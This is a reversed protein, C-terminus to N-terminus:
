LANVQCYLSISTREWHLTFFLLLSLHFLFLSSPPLSSSFSSPCDKGKKLHNLYCHLSVGFSRPPESGHSPWRGYSFGLIAWVWFALQWTRHRRASRLTQYTWSVKLTAAMIGSSLFMVKEKKHKGVRWRSRSGCFVAHNWHGIVLCFQKGKGGFRGHKRYASSSCFFFFISTEPMIWESESAHSKIVLRKVHMVAFTLIQWQIIQGRNFNM